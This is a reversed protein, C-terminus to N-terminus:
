RSDSTTASGPLPGTSTPPVTRTSTPAIVLDAITGNWKQSGAAM